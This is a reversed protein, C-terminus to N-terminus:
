LKSVPALFILYNELDRLCLTEKENIRRTCDKVFPHVNKLFPNDLLPKFIHEQIIQLREYFNGPWSGSTDGPVAASPLVSTVQFSPANLEDNYIDTMTRDLKPMANRLTVNEDRWAEVPTPILKEDENLFSTAPKPPPRKM